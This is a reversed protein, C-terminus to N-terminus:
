KDNITTSKKYPLQHQDFCKEFANIYKTCLREQFDSSSLCNQIGNSENHCIDPKDQILRVYGTRSTIFSDQYTTTQNM